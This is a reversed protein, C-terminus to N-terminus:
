FLIRILKLKKLLLHYLFINNTTRFDKNHVFQFNVDNYNDLLYNKLEDARYGTVIVVENISNTVLSDIINDIITINNIKLLTKHENDTLPRM